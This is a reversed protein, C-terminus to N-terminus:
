KSVWATNFNPGLGGFNFNEKPPELPAPKSKEQHCNQAQKLVVRPEAEAM